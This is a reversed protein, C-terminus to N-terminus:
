VQLKYSTVQLKKKEYIELVKNTQNTNNFYSQIASQGNRKLQNYLTKDTLVTRLANVLQSTDNPEFLLGANNTHIVEPYAGHNPMVVPVGAAMAELMHMGFAEKRRSPVCYVSISELFQKKGVSTLDDHFLIDHEINLEKSKQHIKKIIKKYDDTYGGTYKLKLHAFQEEKKLEVFADFLIDAGFHSSIKSMYGITQNEQSPNNRDELGTDTCNHVVHMKHEPIKIKSRIVDAYYESVSIFADIYRANSEILNWTNTAFPEKMEDIWEDEDQLSCVVVCGLEEKIKEALGSILANSIHVVDPKEHIKLWHVLKELEEAQNGKPGKLMSITMDELGDPNTSGSQKAALRLVAKSDFFRLLWAPMKKFIPSIQKLYINVAGYFIPSDSPSDDAGLPLYMPIIIIEHGTKKLSATFDKDRLCNGCYFTGGSGPIIYVIKM